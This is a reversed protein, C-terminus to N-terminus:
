KILLNIEKKKKDRIIVIEEEAKRKAEDFIAKEVPHIERQQKM